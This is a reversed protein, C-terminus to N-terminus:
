VVACDVVLLEDSFHALRDLYLIGVYINCSLTPLSSSNSMSLSALICSSSDNTPYGVFM